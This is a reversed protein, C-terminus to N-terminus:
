KQKEQKLGGFRRERHQYAILAKDFEKETFDPWLTDCFYFESYACQWLLYNSIRKEGGPRILLDPDPLGSSYLYRSFGEETLADADQEGAACDRAFARAAHLIEDRGGYNLCVNAQFGEIRSSIENTEDILERLEPTLVSLDGLFRLRNGDKEMTDICEHLYQELLHMIGDVEDKPRKWNETSFAYVTLYDIGLNKCYTGLKGIFGHFFLSGIKVIFVSLYFAKHFDPLIIPFLSVAAISESLIPLVIGSHEIGIFM